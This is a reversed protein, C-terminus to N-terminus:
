ALQVPGCTTKEGSARNHAHVAKSKAVCENWVWRARDWEAELATRASVSLRLRNTFRCHGAAQTTAETTM